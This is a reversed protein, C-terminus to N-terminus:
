AALEGRETCAGTRATTWQLTDPGWDVPEPSASLLTIGSQDALLRILHRHMEADLSCDGLDILLLAPPRLWARALLVLFRERTSLNAGQEHVSEGHAALRDRLAELGLERIAAEAADRRESPRRVGFTLNKELSGRLWPGLGSVLLASQPEGEAASSAPSRPRRRSRTSSGELGALVRLLHSKGTGPPGSLSVRTGAPLARVRALMGSGESVNPDPSARDTSPRPASGSRLTRELLRRSLSWGHWRDWVGSLQTLTSGLLGLAAMTAAVDAPARGSMLAVGLLCAAGVGTGLEPLHRTVATWRGKRRVQPELAEARTRLARLERQLGGASRLVPAHRLREVTDMTLRARANRLGRYSTRVSPGSLGLLLLALLVPGLAATALIPDIMVLVVTFVPLALAAAMLRPRGQGIWQQVASLDSILRATLQPLIRRQVSAQGMDALREVLRRRLAQAYDHALLDAYQREALRLGFLLLACAALGFAYAVAGGWPDAAPAAVTQDGLPSGLAVFVARTLWAATALVTTQMVLVALLVTAPRRRAGAWVPPLVARSSM